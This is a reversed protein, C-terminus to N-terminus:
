NVSKLPGFLDIVQLSGEAVLRSKAPVSALPSFELSTNSVESIAVTPQSKEKVHLFICESSLQWLHLSRTLTHIRTFLIGM